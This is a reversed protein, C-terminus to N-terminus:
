PPSGVLTPVVTTGTKRVAYDAKVILDAGVPAADGCNTQSVVTLDGTAGAVALRGTANTYTLPLKGRVRFVCAGVTARLDVDGLHGRTVGTAAAHDQAVISWPAPATFSVNGLVSTCPTGGSGFTVGGVTGVAAPNGSANRLSGSLASRSCVIGIGNHPVIEILMVINASNAASVDVPSPTVTWTTSPAASAPAAPLLLAATAAAAAARLAIPKTM